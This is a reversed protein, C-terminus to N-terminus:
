RSKISSRLQEIPFAAASRIHLFYNKYRIKLKRQTYDFVVQDIQRTKVKSYIYYLVIFLAGYISVNSILEVSIDSMVKSIIPSLVILLWIGMWSGLFIAGLKLFKFLIFYENKTKPEYVPNEM